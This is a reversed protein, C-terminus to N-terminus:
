YSYPAIARATEERVMERMENMAADHADQAEQEAQRRAIGYAIPNDFGPDDRHAALYAAAQQPTMATECGVLAFVSLLLLTKM